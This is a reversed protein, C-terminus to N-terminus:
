RLGLGLIRLGVIVFAALFAFWVLEDADVPPRRVAM